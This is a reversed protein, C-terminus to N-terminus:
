AGARVKTALCSICTNDPLGQFTCDGCFWENCTRCKYTSRLDHKDCGHCDIRDTGCPM